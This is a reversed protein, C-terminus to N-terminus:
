MCGTGKGGCPREFSSRVEPIELPVRRVQMGQLVVPRPQLLNLGGPAEPVDASHFSSSHSHRDRHACCHPHPGHAFGRSPSVSVLALCTPIGAGHSPGGLPLFVPTLLLSVTCTGRKCARAPTHFIYKRRGGGLFGPSHKRSKSAQRSPM